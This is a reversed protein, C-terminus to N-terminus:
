PSFIFSDLIRRMPHPSTFSTEPTTTVVWINLSLWFSLTWRTVSLVEPIDIIVHYTARHWTTLRKTFPLYTFYLVLLSSFEHFGHDSGKLLTNRWTFLSTVHSSFREILRSLTGASSIFHILGGSSPTCHGGMGKGREVKGTKFLSFHNLCKDTPGSM